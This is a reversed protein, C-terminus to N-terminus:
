RSRGLYRLRMSQGYVYDVLELEEGGVTFRKSHELHVNVYFPDAAGGPKTLAGEIVLPSPGMEPTVDKHSHGDFRLKAGGPLDVTQGRTITFDSGSSPSASSTPAAAAPALPPREGGDGCGVLGGISLLTVTRLM